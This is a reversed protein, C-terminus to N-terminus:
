NQGRGQQCSILALGNGAMEFHCFRRLTPFVLLRGGTGAIDM